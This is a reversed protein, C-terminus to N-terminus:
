KTLVYACQGGMFRYCDKLWNSGWANDKYACDM